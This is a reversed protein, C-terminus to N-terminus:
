RSPSRASTASTCRPTSACSGCSSCAASRPASPRSRSGRPRPSRTATPAPASRPSRSRRARRARRRGRPLPPLLERAAPGRRQHWGGLDAWRHSDGMQGAPRLRPHAQRRRVRVRRARPVRRAAAPGAARHIAGDVGGGGAALHQRRQRGRRRARHHHRRPHGRPAPDHAATGPERVSASCPGLARVGPQARPQPLAPAPSSASALLFGRASPDVVLCLLVMTIGAPHNGATGGRKSPLPTRRHGLGESGQPRSGPRGPRWGGTRAPRRAASAPPPWSGRPRGRGRRGPAPHRWGPPWATHLPQSTRTSQRSYASAWPSFNPIQPPSESRSRRRTRRWRASSRRVAM